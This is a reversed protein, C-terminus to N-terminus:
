PAARKRCAASRPRKYIYLQVSCSLSRVNSCLTLPHTATSVVRGRLGSVSARPRRVRPAGARAGCAARGGPTGNREGCMEAAQADRRGQALGARGPAGRTGADPPRTRGSTGRTPPGRTPPGHTRGRWRPACKGASTAPVEYAPAAPRSCPPCPRTSRALAARVALSSPPARESRRAGRTCRSPTASPDARRGPARGSARPCGLDPSLSRGLPSPTPQPHTLRAPLSSGRQPRTSAGRPTTRPRHACGLASNEGGDQRKRRTSRLPSLLVQWARRRPTLARHSRPCCRGLGSAACWSTSRLAAHPLRASVHVKRPTHRRM